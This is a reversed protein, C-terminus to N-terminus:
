TTLDVVLDLVMLLFPDFIFITILLQLPLQISFPHEVHLDDSVLDDLLVPHQLNPAFYTVYGEQLSHCNDLQEVLSDQVAVVGQDLLALDLAHKGLTFSFDVDHLTYHNVLEVVDAM